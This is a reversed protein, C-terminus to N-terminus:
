VNQSEGVIIEPMAERYESPSQGTVEKFVRNFSTISSFGADYAVTTVSLDKKTLLVKADKIRYDNTLESFSKNFHLNIIRSLLHERVSLKKAFIARNFGSERYPKETELIKEARIAVSKEYETLHTKGVSITITEIEFQENFVRFISTMVMYIFAIKIMSIAFVYSQTSVVKSVFGIELGILILNYIIICIVLWYKHRRILPNSDLNFSIRSFVFMLLLFIFSSVIAINLHLTAESAFCLGINAGCTYIYNVFIRIFPGTALVPFALILWYLPPPVRQMTMQLILLFSVAPMMSDAMLLFFALYPHAEPNNYLVEMMRYLLGSSLSLFYIISIAVNSKKHTTALLYVIVFACPLLAALQLAENLSFQLQYDM